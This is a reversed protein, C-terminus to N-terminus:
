EHIEGTAHRDVPGDPHTGVCLKWIAHPALLYGTLIVATVTQWIGTLRLKDALVLAAVALLAYFTYALVTLTKSGNLRGLAFVLAYLAGFLVVMAGAMASILIDDLEVPEFM